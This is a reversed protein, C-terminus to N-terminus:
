ALGVSLATQLMWGSKESPKCETDKENVIGSKWNRGVWAQRVGLKDSEFV